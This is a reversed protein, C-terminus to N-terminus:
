LSSVKKGGRGEHSGTGVGRSGIGDGQRRAVGRRGELPRALCPALGCRVIQLGEAFREDLHVLRMEGAETKGLRQEIRDAIQAADPAVFRAAALRLQDALQHARGVDRRDTFGDGLHLEAPGLIRQGQVVGLAPTGLQDGVIRGGGAKGALTGARIQLLKSRQDAVRALVLRQDDLLAASAGKALQELEDARALGIRSEVLEATGSSVTRTPMTDTLSRADEPVYSSLPMGARRSQSVRATSFGISHCARRMGSSSAVMLAVRRSSTSSSRHSRTTVVPPVPGAGRSTVGSAVSATAVFSSGPKPSCIRRMLRAKTGVAMRDRWTATTRPLDSTMLRGPWGFAIASVRSPMGFAVGGNGPMKAATGYQM